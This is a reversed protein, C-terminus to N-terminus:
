RVYDFRQMMRGCAHAIRARQALSLCRSQRENLDARMHRGIENFRYFRDERLSRGAADRTKDQLRVWVVNGPDLGCRRYLERAREVPERVLDEYRILTLGDDGRERELDLLTAAVSRCVGIAHELDLGRWMLGECVAYPHRVIGVFTAGGYLRELDWAFPVNGNVVKLVMRTAPPRVDTAEGRLRDHYARVAARNRRICREIAAKVIRGRVGALDDRGHSRMPHMFDGSCLMIPVYWALKGLRSALGEARRGRLVEHLEGDPWCCAPHARMLNVALNTGGRQMGLVFIPSATSGAPEHM